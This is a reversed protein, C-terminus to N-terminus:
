GEASRRSGLVSLREAFPEGGERAFVLDTVLLSPGM